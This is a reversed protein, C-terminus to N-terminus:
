NGWLIAVAWAVFVVLALIVVVQFLLRLWYPHIYDTSVGWVGVWAHGALSLVSLLTFMRFWGQAFLGQWDAFQLDPNLLLFGLLFLTYLALIVASVRQVLWDRLGTRALGAVNDVM